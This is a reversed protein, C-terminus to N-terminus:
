ALARIVWLAAMGAGITALVNRTKWAIIVAIIWAASREWGAWSVDGGSGHLFVAPVVLAPLVSAPIFRLMRHVLEPLSLKDMVLIFSARIALTGLGVGLAVPWYTNMDVM